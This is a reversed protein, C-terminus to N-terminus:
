ICCCCSFTPFFIASEQNKAFLQESALDAPRPPLCLEYGGAAALRLGPTEAPNQNVVVEAFDEIAVGAERLVEATNNLLRQYFNNDFWAQGILKSMIKHSEQTTNTAM